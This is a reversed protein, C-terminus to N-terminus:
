HLNWMMFSSHSTDFISPLIILKELSRFCNSPKVQSIRAGCKVVPRRRQYPQDYVLSWDISKSHGQSLTSIVLPWFTVIAKLSYSNFCTTSLRWLNLELTNLEKFLALGYSLVSLLSLYLDFTLTLSVLCTRRTKGSLIDFTLTM